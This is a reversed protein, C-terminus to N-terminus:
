VSPNLRRALCLRHLCRWVRDSCASNCRRGSCPIFFASVVDCLLQGAARGAQPCAAKPLFGEGQQEACRAAMVPCCLPTQVVRSCLSPRRLNPKNFHQTKKQKETQGLRLPEQETGLVAFMEWPNRLGTVSM